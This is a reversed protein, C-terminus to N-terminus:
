RKTSPLTDEFIDNIPELNNQRKSLKSDIPKSSKAQVENQQWHNGIIVHDDHSLEEFVIHATMTQLQDKELKRFKSLKEHISSIKEAPVYRTIDGIIDDHTMAVDAFHQAKCSKDKCQGQSEHHCMIIDPNITNSHTLSSLPKKSLTRYLPSLRYSRFKLLSSEYAVFASSSSQHKVLSPETKDPKTLAKRLLSSTSENSKSVNTNNSTVHPFFNIAISIPSLPCLPRPMTVDSSVNSSTM